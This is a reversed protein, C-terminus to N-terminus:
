GKMKRQYESPSQGMIKSFARSFYLADRFGVKASIEKMSWDTLEIYRCAQQIRLRMFYHMPSTGTIQKFVALYHSRSLHAHEALNDITLNVALRQKMYEISHEVYHNSMNNSQRAYQLSVLSLMHQLLQNAYICHSLSYNKESLSEYCDDFLELWQVTAGGSLQMMAEQLPLLDYYLAAAHGCFHIWCISWPSTESAGYSHTTHPPIVILDHKRVHQRETTGVEIWGEGATCFILIYAPTGEARERYHYKAIPFFGIDTIFLPSILPHKTIKNLFIEPLVLLKESEFGKRKRM